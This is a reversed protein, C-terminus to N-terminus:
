QLFYYDLLALIFLYKNAKILAIIQINFSINPIFKDM